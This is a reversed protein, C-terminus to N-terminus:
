ETITVKERAVIYYILGPIVFILLLIILLCINGSFKSKTRTISM